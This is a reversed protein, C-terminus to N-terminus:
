EPRVLILHLKGSSDEECSEETWGANYFVRARIWLDVPDHGIIEAKKYKPRVESPGYMRRTM